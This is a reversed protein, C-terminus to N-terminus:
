QTRVIQLLQDVPVSRTYRIVPVEVDVVTRDAAICLILNALGAARYRALKTALYDETWFGVLEIWWRRAPDARHVLVLDPFVLHDAAAIPTAERVITWEDTARALERVLRAEVLHRPRVPPPPLLIPSAVRVVVTGRGLDCRAVLEFHPHASLHPVLKGLARGYVTTRQFVSLPGSIELVTTEDPGHRATHILGEISIVRVLDRSNGLLSIRVDYARALTRQLIALNALACLALEGPRGFPMAVLREGPLDGWMLGVLSAPDLGLASAADAIRAAHTAPDLAPPGLVHARIRRPMVATKARKGLLRRLAAIIAAGRAHQARPPRTRWRDILARWPRDIAAEPDDIVGAVWPRDRDDLLQIEVRDHIQRYPVKM